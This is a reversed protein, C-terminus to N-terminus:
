IEDKTLLGLDIGNRLRILQVRLGELIERLTKSEILPFGSSPARGKGKRLSPGSIKGTTERIQIIPSSHLNVYDWRVPGKRVSTIMQKKRLTPLSCLGAASM